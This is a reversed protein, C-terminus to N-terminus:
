CLYFWLLMRPFTSKTKVPYGTSGLWKLIRKILVFKEKSLLSSLEDLGDYNATFNM